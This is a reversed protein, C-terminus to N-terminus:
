PTRIAAYGGRAPCIKKKKRRRRLPGSMETPILSIIDLHRAAKEHRHAPRLKFVASLVHDKWEGGSVPSQTHLSPKGHRSLSSNALRV